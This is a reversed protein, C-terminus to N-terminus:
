WGLWARVRAMGAIVTGHPRKRVHARLYRRSELPNADRGDTFESPRIGYFQEFSHLRYGPM